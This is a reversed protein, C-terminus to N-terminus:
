RIEEARGNRMVFRAGVLSTVYVMYYEGELLPKVPVTEKMGTPVEGYTIPVPKDHKGEIMWNMNQKDELLTELLIGKGRKEETLHYVLLGNTVTNSSFTFTPPTTPQVRVEPPIECAQTSLLCLQTLILWSYKFSSFQRM